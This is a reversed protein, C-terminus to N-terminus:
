NKTLRQAEEILRRRVMELHPERVPAGKGSCAPSYEAAAFWQALRACTEPDFADRLLKLKREDNATRRKKSELRALETAAEAETWIEAVAFWGM